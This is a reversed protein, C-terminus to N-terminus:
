PGGPACAYILDLSGIDKHGKATSASIAFLCEIQCMHSSYIHVHIPQYVIWGFSYSDPVMWSLDFSLLMQSLSINTRGFITLLKQDKRRQEM